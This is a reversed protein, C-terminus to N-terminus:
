LIFGSAVADEFFMRVTDQSFDNLDRNLNVAKKLIEPSVTIIDCGAAEAQYINLLERTSAWILEVGDFSEILKKSEVMIEFPDRGTDAIRGAFVSVYAPSGSKLVKALKGVQELTMM